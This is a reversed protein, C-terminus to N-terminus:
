CRRMRWLRGITFRAWQGAGRESWIWRVGFRPARSTATAEALAEGVVYIHGAHRATEEMRHVAGPPGVM